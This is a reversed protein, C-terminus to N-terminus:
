GSLLLDALERVAGRGGDRTLRVDVRGLVQPAADAPAATLGCLAMAPLDPTDDGVYCLEGLPVGLDESLEVLTAAKDAVGTRVFSIGLEKTRRQLAPSDRSSLVAVVIGANLLAVIGYGDKVDFAVVQSEDDYTIRGDTLVGDVDLVVGRVRKAIPMPANEAELLREVVAVDSPRDVAHTSSQVDVVAIRMGLDLARLQELSEFRELTSPAAAVFRQLAARRYAYVGVHRRVPDAGYPIVSRSFYLATLDAACAITVVDATSATIRPVVVAPTAIDARADDALREVLADVIESRLL